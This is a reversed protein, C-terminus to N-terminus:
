ELKEGGDVRLLSGVADLVDNVSIGTMCRHDVPCQRKLCPACETERRVL